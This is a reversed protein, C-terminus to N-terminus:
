MVRQFIGPTSSIGFPLRNYPFLWHHTNIVAYKHFDEDLPLEQYAELKTFAKWGALKACIDEVKHIPYRDHKSAQNVTLKLDGCIQRSKGDSKVVPVIPAAWDAFQTPEYIGESVLCELKEEVKGKM